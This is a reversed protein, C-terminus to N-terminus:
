SLSTIAGKLLSSELPHPARKILSPDYALDFVFEGTEFDYFDVAKETYAALKDLSPIYAFTRLPIETKGGM